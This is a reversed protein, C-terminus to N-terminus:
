GGPKTTTTPPKPDEPTNLGNSGSKTLCDGSGERVKATGWFNDGEPAIADVTCTQNGQRWSVRLQGDERVVVIDTVPLKHDKAYARLERQVTEVELRDAKGGEVHHTRATGILIGVVIGVLLIAVKVLVNPNFNRRGTAATGSEPQDSATGDM